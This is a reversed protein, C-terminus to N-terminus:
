KKPPQAYIIVENLKAAPGEYIIDPQYVDADNCEQILDEPIFNGEQTFLFRPQHPEGLNSNNYNHDQYTWMNKNESTVFSSPTNAPHSTNSPSSLSSKQRNQYQSEEYILQNIKIMVLDRRDEPLRQLKKAVLKGFINCEDDEILQSNHFQSVTKLIQLAEDTQKKAKQLEPPDHQRRKSGTMPQQRSTSPGQDVTSQSPLNSTSEQEPNSVNTDTEDVNEESGLSENQNSQFHFNILYRIM